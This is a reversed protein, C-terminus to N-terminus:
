GDLGAIHIGKSNLYNGINMNIGELLIVDQNLHFVEWSNGPKAVIVTDSQTFIWIVRETGFALLKKVKRLVYQEFPNATPDELKVQVDIEVVIKPNVDIYKLNIKEPTLVNNDYVAVDLALNSRHDLHSGIEGSVPQFRNLDLKQAFLIMLYAKIIAQLGSDAMIDELTKKRNIVDKYGAYYFPIGDITERILYAPIKRKAPKNEPTPLSVAPLM